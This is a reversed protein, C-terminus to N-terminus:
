SNFKCAVFEVLSKNMYEKLEENFLLIFANAEDTSATQNQKFKSILNRIRESNIEITLM